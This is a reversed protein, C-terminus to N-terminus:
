KIVKEMKVTGDSMQKKMIVVGKKAVPIRQGNLDYLEIARVKATAAAKDVGSAVEDYLASYDVDAKGTLYIHVDDLFAQSLNSWTCGLTLMGDEVIINPIEVDVYGDQHTVQRWGATNIDKDMDAGEEVDPTSSTKVYVYSFVDETIDGSHDRCKFVINYIGAPLDTITQETTAEAHWGPHFAVDEPYATNANHTPNPGWSSWAEANGKLNTWGPIAMTFAPAYVNPNKVFVSLDHTKALGTQEDEPFLNEGANIKKYLAAKLNNKVKEALEDDDDFANLAEEIIPNEPELVKIAEAGRRLREVLPAVGYTYMKSEGSTFM